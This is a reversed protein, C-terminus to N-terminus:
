STCERRSSARSKWDSPTAGPSMTMTCADTRATLPDRAAGVLNM